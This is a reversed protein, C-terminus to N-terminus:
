TVTMFRAAAERGPLTWVRFCPWIAGAAASIVLSVAVGTLDYRSALWPLTTVVAVWVIIEAITGDQPYGLGRLADILVRRLSYYLSGVLLIRVIPVSAAFDSGLLLTVLWPALILLPIVVLLSLAFTLAAYHLIKRRAGPTSPDAALTPFAVVGVSLGIFRPLNTFGLAAAYIGLATPSLLAAVAAQDIRFTDIPSATGLFSKAGFRTLDM